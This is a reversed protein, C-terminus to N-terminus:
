ADAIKTISGSSGRFYLAGGVCYVIGGGSPDTTPAATANALFAVGDGGGYSGTGAGIAINDYVTVEGTFDAGALAAYDSPDLGSSWSVGGAAGSDATLYQGDTGVSVTVFTDAGSAALIDGKADALTEMVAGDTGGGFDLAEPRGFWEGASPHLVRQRSAGTTPLVKVIFNLTIYPPLNEHPANSGVESTNIGSAGTISNTAINHAHNGAASTLYGNGGQAKPIQVDRLINKTGSGTSGEVVHQHSGQVDTYGGHQHDHTHKHRALQAENLVVQEAGGQQNLFAFKANSANRGFVSLGRCDPVRFKTADVDTIKNYTTGFTAFAAPYATRSLEQGDAMVWTGDPPIAGGWPMVTGVPIDSFIQQPPLTSAVSGWVPLGTIGSVQLVDGSTGAALVDVDGGGPAGILLSGATAYDTRYVVDDELAELDVQLAAAEVPRLALRIGMGTDAWLIGRMGDPGYFAISGVSDSTPATITAGLLTQLDTVATGGTRASYIPVTQGPVLNGSGIEMVFDATSAGYIYRTM